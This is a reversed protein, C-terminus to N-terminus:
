RGLWRALNVLFHLDDSAEAQDRGMRKRGILWGLIWGGDVVMRGAGRDRRDLALLAPAEPAAGYLGEFGSDPERLLFGYQDDFYLSGVGDLLPHDTEPIPKPRDYAEVNGGFGIGFPSLLVDADEAWAGSRAVSELSVWVGGGARWFEYLAQGEVAGVEVIDDHDAELVWVQEFGDLVARDLRPRSRRDATVIEVGLEAGRGRLLELDELGRYWGRNDRRDSLVYMLARQAAPDLARALELGLDAGAEAREARAVAGLGDALRALETSSMDLGLLRLRLQPHRRLAARAARGLDGDCNDAGDVVLAIVGPQDVPVLEAATRLAAALPSKGAPRAQDLQRLVGELPNPAGPARLLAVDDCDDPRRGGAIILGLEAFRDQALLARVASRLREARPRGGFDAVMSSSFDLVLIAPALTGVALLPVLSALM